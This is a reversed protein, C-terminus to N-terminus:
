PAQQDVGDDAEERDAQRRTVVLQVREVLGEATVTGPDLGLEDVSVMENPSVGHRELMLQKRRTAIYDQMGALERDAAVTRARVEDDPEDDLLASLPVNLVVALVAAEALRPPREGSETKAVTTQHWQFGHAEMVSSVAAQSLGLLQRRERARRGFSSDLETIRDHTNEM